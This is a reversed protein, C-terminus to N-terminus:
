DEDDDDDDDSASLTWNNGCLYPVSIAIIKRWRGRDLAVSEVVGILEFNRKVIDKL